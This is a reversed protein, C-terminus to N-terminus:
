ISTLALNNNKNPNRREPIEVVGFPEGYWDPNWWSGTVPSIRHHEVEFDMDGYSIALTEIDTLVANRTQEFREEPAAAATATLDVIIELAEKATM